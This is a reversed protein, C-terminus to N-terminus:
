HCGCKLTLLNATLLEARFMRHSGCKQTLLDATHFLARVSGTLDVNYPLGMLQTYYLDSSTVLAM